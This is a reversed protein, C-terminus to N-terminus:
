PRRLGRGRSARTSARSATQGRERRRRGGGRRRRSRARLRERAPEGRRVVVQHPEREFAKRRPASRLHHSPSSLRSGTWGRAIEGASRCTARSRASIRRSRVSSCGLPASSSHISPPWCPGGGVGHDGASSALSPREHRSCGPCDFRLARPPSACPIDADDVDDRRGLELELVRAGREAVDPRDRLRQPEERHEVDDEPAEHPQAFM